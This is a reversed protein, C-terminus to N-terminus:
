LMRQYEPEMRNRRIEGCLTMVVYGPLSICKAIEERTWGEDRACKVLKTLDESAEILSEAMLQKREDTTMRKPM